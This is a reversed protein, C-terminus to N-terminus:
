SPDGHKSFKIVEPIKKMISKIKRNLEKLMEKIELTNSKYNWDTNDGKESVLDERLKSRKRQKRNIYNVDPKM